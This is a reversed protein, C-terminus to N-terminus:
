GRNKYHSMRFVLTPHSLSFEMFYYAADCALKNYIAPCCIVMKQPFFAAYQIYGRPFSAALFNVDVIM